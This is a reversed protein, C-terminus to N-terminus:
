KSRAKTNLTMLQKVGNFTRVEHLEGKIDEMYFRLTARNADLERALLTQNGRYEKTCLLDHITLM